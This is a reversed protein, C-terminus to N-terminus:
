KISELYFERAAKNLATHFLNRCKSTCFHQWSRTAKFETKCQKCIM